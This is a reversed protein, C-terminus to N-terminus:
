LYCILNNTLFSAGILSVTTLLVLQSREIYGRLTCTTHYLQITCNYLYVVYHFRPRQFYRLNATHKMKDCSSHFVYPLKCVTSIHYSVVIIATPSCFYEHDAHTYILHKCTTHRFWRNFNSNGCIAIYSTHSCFINRIPLQVTVQIGIFHDIVKSQTPHLRDLWMVINM